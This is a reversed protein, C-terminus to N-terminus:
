KPVKLGYPRLLKKAMKSISKGMYGKKPPGIRGVKQKRIRPM